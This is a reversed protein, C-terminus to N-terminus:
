SALGCTTWFSAIVATLLGILAASNAFNGTNKGTLLSNLGSFPESTVADEALRKLNM